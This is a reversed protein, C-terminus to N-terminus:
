TLGDDLAWKKFEKKPNTFWYRATNVIWKAARFPNLFVKKAGKKSFVENELAKKRYRILLNWYKFARAIDEKSLDDTRMVIEFGTYRTWDQTLIWGKEEALKYLETGPYPTVAALFVRDPNIEEMLKFSKWISQKTEGPLGIMFFAGTKIGVDKADSFVRKIMDISVGKKATRSLIKEDGSEVGLHLGECGAEKMKMMLGRTIKDVRTECIWKIDLGREIIGRCIKGTRKMDFTFVQDRFIISKVHFNDVHFQIESLVNKPSRGRWSEGYGFPYPCYICGYPCGRSTLMTILPKEPLLSHYYKDIPLCHYAPFPLEDLNVILPRNPTEIIKDDKKYIIGKVNRFCKHEFVKLLEPITYEIESKIVIDVNSNKLAIEPLASVFSGTLCICINPAKEKLSGCIQLDENLSIPTTNMVILDPKDKLIRDIIEQTSMGLAPADIIEFCYGERELVSAAYAFDLPPLLVQWTTRIGFKGAHDRIVRYTLPDPPQLFVTKM